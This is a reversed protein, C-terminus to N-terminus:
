LGGMIETIRVGFNDDVAVLQGRAFVKGDVIIDIPADVHRDTKLVAGESLGMLEGLTTDVHGAVAAVQVKVGRLLSLNDGFVPKGPQAPPAVEALQVVQAVPAAQTERAPNHNM